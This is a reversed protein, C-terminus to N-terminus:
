NKHLKLGIVGITLGLDVKVILMGIIQAGQFSTVYAILTHLSVCIKSNDNVHWSFCYRHLLRILPNCKKIEWLGDVGLRRCHGHFLVSKFLDSFMIALLCVERFIFYVSHKNLERFVFIHKVIPRNLNKKCFVGVTLYQNTSTHGRAKWKTSRVWTPQFSFSFWLWIVLTAQVVGKDLALITGKDWEINM